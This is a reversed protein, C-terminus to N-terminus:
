LLFPAIIAEGSKASQGSLAAVLGLKITEQATAPLALALSVAGAAAAVLYRRSLTMSPYAM